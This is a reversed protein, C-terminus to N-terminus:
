LQNLTVISEEKTESEFKANIMIKDKSAIWKISKIEQPFEVYIVKM